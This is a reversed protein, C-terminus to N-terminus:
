TLLASCQCIQRYAAEERAYTPEVQGSLSRAQFHLPLDLNVIEAVANQLLVPGMDSSVSIDAGNAGLKLPDIDDAASKGALVNAM